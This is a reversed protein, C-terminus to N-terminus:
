KAKEREVHLRLVERGLDTITYTFAGDWTVLTPEFELTIATAYGGENAVRELDRLHSRGIKTLVTHAEHELDTM